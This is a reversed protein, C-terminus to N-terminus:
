RALTSLWRHHRHDATPSAPTCSYPRGSVDVVAQAIAEDLPVPRRRLPPHRRTASRRGFRRASCIATDEVTHHADIHLDGESQVTLDILSHRALATSCTTTSASAPPSTTSAPATSISRSSSTRSRPRASSAHLAADNLGDGGSRKPVRRMEDPTGISVRLWGEPGTERILVGRDVLGQWIAHRDAFPGFLIFNADSEAVEFGQERLWAALSTAPRRAARRGPGAARRQAAARGARRGPDRDVPSLAAPRHAPRRHHCRRRRRLGAPRRRPRVGQEHHPDGVAASVRRATGAREAHRRPPVRCLGEDVVVIRRRTLVIASTDRSRPGHRHPQEALHPVRRGTASGQHARAGGRCRRRLRRTAPRRGLPHPHQPRIGSVDFLDARVVAATRGPGGFAQLIQQMVENSGNAGVGRPTSGTAWTAPSRTAFYTPRATPTATSCRHGGASSRHRRHGRRGRREARVPERQHQAGSLRADATRWLARRRASRRPDAGMDPLPM